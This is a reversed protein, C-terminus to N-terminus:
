VEILVKEPEPTAITKAIKKKEEMKEEVEALLPIWCKKMVHEWSYNSLIFERAQQFLEEKNADYCKNLTEYIGKVSPRFHFNGLNYYEKHDWDVVWGAGTLEPMGGCSNSIVPIGCAQSEILGIQFGEGASAGLYVDAANYLKCMEEDSFGLHYDYRKPFKIINEAGFLKGICHLDIGGRNPLSDTHLYALSNPHDKNFMAFAEIQETFAKRDPYSQNAAVMIALFTSEPIKLLERAIKRSEARTKGLPKFITHEVAHPICIANKVGGKEAQKLSWENMCIAKMCGELAPKFSEPMPEGDIPFWAYWRGPLKQGFDKLVWVDILSIVMDAGFNDAHSDIIDNGWGDLGIPYIAIGNAEMKTGQLGYFASVAVEHGLKLLNQSLYRTQGGYGSSAYPANSHIMIKM